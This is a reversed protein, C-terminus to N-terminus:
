KSKKPYLDFNPTGTLQIHLFRQTSILSKCSAEVLLDGHVRNDYTSEDGEKFVEVSVNVPDTEKMLGKEISARAMDALNLIHRVLLRKGKAM